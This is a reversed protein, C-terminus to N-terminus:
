TEPLVDPADATTPIADSERQWWGLKNGGPVFKFLEGTEENFALINGERTLHTFRKGPSLQIKATPTQGLPSYAVPVPGSKTPVTHNSTPTPCDFDPTRWEGTAPDRFMGPSPPCDTDPCNHQFYDAMTYVPRDYVVTQTRAVAPCLATVALALIPLAKMAESEALPSLAAGLNAATLCLM